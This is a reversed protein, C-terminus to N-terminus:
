ILDRNHRKHDCQCKDIENFPFETSETWGNLSTFLLVYYLSLWLFGLHASVWFFRGPILLVGQGLSSHIICYANNNHLVSVMNLANRTYKLGLVSTYGALMVTAGAWFALHNYEFNAVALQADTAVDASNFFSGVEAAMLFMLLIMDRNLRKMVVKKLEESELSREVQHDWEKTHDTTIFLDWPQLLDYRSGGRAENENPAHNTKMNSSCNQTLWFIFVALTLVRFFCLSACNAQTMQTTNHGSGATGARADM